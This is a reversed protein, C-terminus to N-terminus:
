GIFRTIFLHPHAHKFASEVDETGCSTNRPPGPRHVWSVDVRGREPNCLVLRAIVPNLPSNESFGRSEIGAKMQTNRKAEGAGSRSSTCQKGNAPNPLSPPPSRIRGCAGEMRRLSRISPEPAHVLGSHYSGDSRGKRVPLLGLIRGFRLREDLARRVHAGPPGNTSV